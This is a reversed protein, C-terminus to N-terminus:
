FESKLIYKIKIKRWLIKFPIVFSLFIVLYYSGKPFYMKLDNKFGTSDFTERKAIEVNFFLLPLYSILIDKIIKNRTELKILGNKFVGDILSPYEVSFARFKNHGGRKRVFQTTFFHKDNIIFNSKYHQSLFISTHPFLNNLSLSDRVKDFDTKWICFGNSWSSLYSLNRMYTDFDNYYSEEGNLLLGSTLFVLPNTAKNFKAIDILSKLSGPNWLEQSNHLKLFHGKAYTLVYFSNMFGDCITSHYHINSYQFERLLIEIAKAPDNDSIIVEFDDLACSALNKESYISNLTNRLYEVRDFAPICISLFPPKLNIM